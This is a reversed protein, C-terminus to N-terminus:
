MGKGEGALGFNLKIYLLKSYVLCEKVDSSHFGDGYVFVEINNWNLSYISM